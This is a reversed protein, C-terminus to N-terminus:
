VLVSEHEMASTPAFATESPPHPDAKGTVDRTLPSEYNVRPSTRMSHHINSSRHPWQYPARLGRKQQRRQKREQMM